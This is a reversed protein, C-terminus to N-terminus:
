EKVVYGLDKMERDFQEDRYKKIKQLWLGLPIHNRCTGGYRKPLCEAPIHQQLSKMDNGHFHIRNLFGVPIFRKFIYFFTNIIWSYNIIHISWIKSPVSTGLISVIQYAFTPTVATLQRMTTGELDLIVTTGLVQLKPQRIGIEAVALGSRLLYDAPLESPDWTGFRIISVRGIDPKDYIVGEYIDRIKVLGWLDVGQQLGPYQERFAYYRVLLRYARRIIFDRSRLFRLLYEDDTRHPKVEDREIIMKRLENIALMRTDPNENCQELAVAALEPDEKTNLEAEFAIELFYEYM